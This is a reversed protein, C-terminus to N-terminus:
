KVKSYTLFNDEEITLINTGTPIDKKAFMGRGM